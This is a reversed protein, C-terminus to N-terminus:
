VKKSSIKFNENNKWTQKVHYFNRLKNESKQSNSAGTKLGLAINVDNRASSPRQFVKTIILLRLDLIPYVFLLRKTQFLAVFHLKNPRTHTFPILTGAACGQGFINQAQGRSSPSHAMFLVFGFACRVDVTNSTERVSFILVTLPMLIQM